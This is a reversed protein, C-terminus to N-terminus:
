PRMELHAKIEDLSPGNPAAKVIEITGDNKLLVIPIEDAFPRQGASNQSSNIMADVHTPAWDKIAQLSGCYQVAHVTLVDNAYPM